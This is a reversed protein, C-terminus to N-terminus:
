NHYEPSPHPYVKFDLSSNNDDKLMSKGNREILIREMTKGTYFQIGGTTGADIRPNLTKENLHTVDDLYEVGDLINKYPILLQEDFWVLSDQDMQALVIANRKGGILWDNGASQYIKIMNPIEPNDIDPADDKYFEFSVNSLDVSNPANIRHDIADEASVRYQGPNIPYEKGTGPFKWISKSHVFEPDDIYNLGLYESAYVVAILLGDLYAVSDSQNYIEIYKDHYYLGSGPPGCAYIESIVLASELYLKDMAIEINEHNDARLDIVGSSSNVLKYFDLKQGTLVEMEDESMLRLASIIYQDSTINNILIEGNEDSILKYELGLTNSKLVISANGVSSDGYIKQMNGTNDKLLIKFTTEREVAGPKQDLNLITDCGVLLFMVCMMMFFIKKM